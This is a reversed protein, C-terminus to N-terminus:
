LQSSYRVASSAFQSNWIKGSFVKNVECLSIVSKQLSAAQQLLGAPNFFLMKKILKIQTNM